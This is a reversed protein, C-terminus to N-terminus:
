YAQVALKPLTAQYPQPSEVLTLNRQIATAVVIRNDDDLDASGGDPQTVKLDMVLLQAWTRGIRDDVVLLHGQDRVMATLTELNQLYSARAGSPALRAIEHLARGFSIVSVHAASRSVGELWRVM